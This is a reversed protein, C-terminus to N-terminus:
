VSLRREHQRVRCWWGKRFLHRARQNSVEAPAESVNRWCINWGVPETSLPWWAFIFLDSMLPAYRCIRKLLLLSTTVHASLIKPVGSPGNGMIASCNCKSSTRLSSLDERSLYFLCICVIPWHRSIWGLAAMTVSARLWRLCGHAWPVMLTTYKLSVFM